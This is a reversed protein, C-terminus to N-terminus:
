ISMSISLWVVIIIYVAMAWELRQRIWVEWYVRKEFSMFYLNDTKRSLYMYGYRMFWWLLWTILIYAVVLTIGIRIFYSNFQPCLINYLCELSYHGAKKTACEIPINPNYATINQLEFIPRISENIM